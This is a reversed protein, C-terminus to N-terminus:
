NLTEKQKEDLFKSLKERAEDNGTVPDIAKRCELFFEAEECLYKYLHVEAEEEDIGNAVLMGKLFDHELM